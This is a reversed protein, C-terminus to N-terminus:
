GQQRRRTRRPPVLAMAAGLFLGAFVLPLWPSSHGSRVPAGGTAPPGAIFPLASTASRRTFSVDNVVTGGGFSGDPDTTTTAPDTTTTTGSLATTTTVLAVNTTTTSVPVATTTTTTTVPLTTSTTTTVPVTTSTTTTVPLTTTTTTSDPPTLDCTPAIFTDTDLTVAAGNALVRGHVTVGSNVTISDHALVSGAITSDSGLTASSGVQWFVNCEQAGNILTVTSNSGSIFTTDTQFIFVSNPNDAGDLIVTGNLSLPDKALTAFVGGTFTQGGLESGITTDVIRGAADGYAIGLDVQAQQAAATGPETTGPPIVLPAGTILVGPWIGVSRDMTTVGSNSVASAGLVAFDASTALPVTPVIAAEAPVTFSLLSGAALTFAITFALASAGWRRAPAIHSTM